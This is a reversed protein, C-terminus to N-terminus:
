EELTFVSGLAQKVEALSPYYGDGPDMWHLCTLRTVDPQRVSRLYYENAYGIISVYGLINDAGHNIAALRRDLSSYQEERNVKYITFRDPQILQDEQSLTNVELECYPYYIDISGMKMVRGGQVRVRVSKAPITLARHLVLQADTSIRYHPSTEPRVLSDQCASLMLMSLLLLLIRPM